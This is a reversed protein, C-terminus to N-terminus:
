PARRFTPIQVPMRAIEAYLQEQRRRHEAGVTALHEGIAEMRELHPAFAAKLREGLPLYNLTNTTM